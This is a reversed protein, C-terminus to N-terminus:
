EEPMTHLHVDTQPFPIQIRKENFTAYIDKLLQHRVRGRLEPHDIWTLLEFDLSSAGFARMRVRPAPLKVVEPVSDAVEELVSCVEEVDSGYAVGVPIRIRHKVWPGGSENVIKANAIVANPVTVEVDDRTVLRTSRMGLNTVMGREGSDIVIYDGIKYPADAVIFIGSFLNALSDKAAFGVAIGIVGASALWATPNIGWILLFVYAGFIVLVMKISMSFLPITREQVIEFRHSNSAVVELLVRAMRLGARLWSFLLTTALISLIADHLGRPLGYLSVVMMLALTVSTLVLPSTAYEVLRDDADSDTRSAVVMLVRTTVFKLLKGFIYATLILLLTLLGPYPTLHEWLPQLNDPVFYSLDLNPRLVPEAVTEATTGAAENEQM